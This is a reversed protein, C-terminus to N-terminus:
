PARTVASFRGSSNVEPDTVIQPVGASLRWSGSRPRASCPVSPEEESPGRSGKRVRGALQAAGGSSVRRASDFSPAMAISVAGSCSLPPLGTASDPHSATGKAGFTETRGVLAAASLAAPRLKASPNGFLPSNLGLSPATLSVSGSVTTRVRGSPIMGLAAVTLPWPTQVGAWYLAALAIEPGPWPQGSAELIPVRVAAM